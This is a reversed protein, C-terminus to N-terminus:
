SQKFKFVKHIIECLLNFFIDKTFIKVYHKLFINENKKNEEEKSM